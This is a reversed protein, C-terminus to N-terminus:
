APVHLAREALIERMLHQLAADDILDCAWATPEWRRARRGAEPWVAAVEHVHMLFVTVHYTQGFKEYCYSGVPDPTLRGTLGAEEWAELLATEGASHGPEVHGKPIVWRKGSSSRVLCVRGRHVPIAGAQQICDKGVMISSVRGAAHNEQKVMGRIPRDHCPRLQVAEGM